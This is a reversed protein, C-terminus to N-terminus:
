VEAGKRGCAAADSLPDADPLGDGVKEFQRMDLGYPALFWEMGRM